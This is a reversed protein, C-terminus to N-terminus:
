KTIERVIRFGIDFRSLTPFYFNREAARIAILGRAFAGGRIVRAEGERGNVNVKKGRAPGQPDSIARNKYFEPDYWDQCWEWVLGVSQYNEGIMIAAREWEAETPMRYRKGTQGSLWQCFAFADQWTILVVPSDAQGAPYDNGEWGYVAGRPAPRGTADIFHKYLRNTVERTSIEFESVFVNQAPRQDRPGDEKGRFLNGETVTLMAPELDPKLSISVVVIEGPSLTVTKNWEQFGVKVVRLQQQGPALNEIFTARGPSIKGVFKNDLYVDSDPENTLLAIKGTPISKKIPVEFRTGSAVMDISGEWNDYGDARVRLQHEGVTVGALILRGDVGSFGRSRGDVEILAGPPAIIMLKPNVPAPLSESPRSATQPSQKSDKVAGKKKVVVRGTSDQALLSFCISLAIIATLSMNLCINLINKRIM